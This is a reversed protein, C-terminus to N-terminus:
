WFHRAQCLTWYVNPDWVNACRNYLQYHTCGDNFRRYMPSECQNIPPGWWYQFNGPHPNLCQGQVPQMHPAQFLIEPLLSAQTTQGLREVCEPPLPVAHADHKHFRADKIWQSPQMEGGEKRLIEVCRDGTKYYKSHVYNEPDVDDGNEKADTIPTERGAGELPHEVYHYCYAAADEKAKDDAEVNQPNPVTLNRDESGGIYPQTSVTGSTASGASYLAQAWTLEWIGGPDQMANVIQFGGNFSSDSPVQVSVNVGKLSTPPTSGPKLTATVHGQPDRGISSLSFSLTAPAKTPSRAPVASQWPIRYYVVASCVLLAFCLVVMRAWLPLSLLVDGLRNILGTLFESIDFKSSGAPPLPPADLSM